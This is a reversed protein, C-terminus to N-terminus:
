LVDNVTVRSCTRVRRWAKRLKHVKCKDLESASNDSNGRRQSMIMCVCSTRIEGKGSLGARVLEAMDFPAAHHQDM